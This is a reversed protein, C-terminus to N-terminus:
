ELGAGRNGAQSIAVVTGGKYYAAAPGIRHHVQPALVPDVPMPGKLWGAWHAPDCAAEVSSTLAPERQGQCPGQQSAGERAMLAAHRTGDWVEDGRGAAGSSM